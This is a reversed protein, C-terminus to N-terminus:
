TMAVIKGECKFSSVVFYSHAGALIASTTCLCQLIVCNTRDELCLGPILRLYNENLKGEMGEEGLRGRKSGGPPM